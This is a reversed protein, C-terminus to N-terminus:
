GAPNDPKQEVPPDLRVIELGLAQCHWQLSKTLIEHRTKKWPLAAVRKIAELLQEEAKEEEAV